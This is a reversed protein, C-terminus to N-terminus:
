VTTNFEGALANKEVFDNKNIMTRKEKKYELM